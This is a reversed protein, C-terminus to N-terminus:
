DIAAYAPLTIFTEVLSKGRWHRRALLWAMALGFPLILLTSLAAVWTTFGIVQWEESTM